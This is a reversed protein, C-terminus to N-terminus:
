GIMGALTRSPLTPYYFDLGSRYPNWCLLASSCSSYNTHHVLFHPSSHVRLQLGNLLNSTSSNARYHLAPRHGAHGVSVANNYNWWRLEPIIKMISVTVDENQTQLVKANIISFTWRRPLAPNWGNVDNVMRNTCISSPGCWSGTYVLSIFCLYGFVLCASRLM